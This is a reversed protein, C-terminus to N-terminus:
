DLFQMTDSGIVEANIFVRHWGDLLITAHDEHRVYGRAYVTPNRIMTRLGIRDFDPNEAKRAAYEEETMQEGGVIYVLEGGERYLEQCIHRKSGATRQLPENKHIAHDPFDRKSPVFYWEGQRKFFANRRNDVEDPPLNKVQEWIEAPLLARKADRVSSISRQVESVFWHREDHGFLFRQGETTLLLLHRDKTKAQLLKFEPAQAGMTFDFFEGRRDRRIDITFKPPEDSNRTTRPLQELRRFRIRAGMAKFHKALQEKTM